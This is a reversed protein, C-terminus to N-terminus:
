SDKQKKYIRKTNGFCFLIAQTLISENYIITKGNGDTNPFAFSAKDKIPAGNEGIDGALWAMIGFKCFPCLVAEKYVEQKCRPCIVYEENKGDEM